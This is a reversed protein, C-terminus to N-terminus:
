SYALAILKDDFILHVFQNVRSAIASHRVGGALYVDSRNLRGL